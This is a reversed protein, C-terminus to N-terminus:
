ATQTDRKALYDSLQQIKKEVTALENMMSTELEGLADNASETKTDALSELERKIEDRRAEAEELRAPTSM